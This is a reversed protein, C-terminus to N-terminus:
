TVDDIPEAVELLTSMSCVCFLGTKGCVPYFCSNLELTEEVTYRFFRFSVIDFSAAKLGQQPACVKWPSVEGLRSLLHDSSIVAVAM